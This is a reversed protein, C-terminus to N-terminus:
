GSKRNQLLIMGKLLNLAESLQYDSQALDGDTKPTAASDAPANEVKDSRDNRLHGTRDRICM